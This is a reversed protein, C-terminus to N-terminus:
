IRLKPLLWGEFGTLVIDYNLRGTYYIQSWFFLPLKSVAFLPIGSYLGQDWQDM